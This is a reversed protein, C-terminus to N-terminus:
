KYANLTNLLTNTVSNILVANEQAKRAKREENLIQQEKYAADAKQQAILSANDQATQSAKAAIYLVKDYFQTRKPFDKDKMIWDEYALNDPMKNKYIENTEGKSSDVLFKFGRNNQFDNQNGFYYKVIEENNNKRSFSDGAAVFHDILYITRKDADHFLIYINNLESTTPLEAYTFRKEIDDPVNYLNLNDSNKVLFSEGKRYFNSNDGYIEKYGNELIKNTFSSM